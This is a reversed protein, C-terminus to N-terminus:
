KQQGKKHIPTVKAQKFASPFLGSSLSLNFIKKLPKSIIKSCMKLFKTGIGDLGTSKRIDLDQLEKSIFQSTIEPIKFPCKDKSHM